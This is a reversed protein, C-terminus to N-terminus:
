EPTTERHEVNLTQWLGFVLRYDDRKRVLDIQGVSVVKAVPQTGGASGPDRSDDRVQSAGAKAVGPAGPHERLGV